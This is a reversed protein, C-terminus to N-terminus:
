QANSSFRKSSFMGYLSGNNDPLIVILLDLERGQPRLKNMADQYRGKLAREVNEPRATLVPLVPELAFDQFCLFVFHLYCLCLGSQYVHLQISATDSHCVYWELYEACRLWSKVSFGPLMIMCMEHFTLAHGAALKVVM